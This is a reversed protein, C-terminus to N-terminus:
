FVPMDLKYLYNNIIFICQEILSINNFMLLHNNSSREHWFNHGPILSPYIMFIVNPTSGPPSLSLSLVKCMQLFCSKLNNFNARSDTLM